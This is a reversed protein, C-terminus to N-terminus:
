LPPPSPRPFSLLLPDPTPNLRLQQIDKAAMGLKLDILRADVQVQATVFSDLRTFMSNRARELKTSLTDYQVNLTAEVKTIGEQIKLICRTLDVLDNVIILIETDHTYLRSDSTKRHDCLCIELRGAKSKFGAGM